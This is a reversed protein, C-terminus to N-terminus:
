RVISRQFLSFIFAFYITLVGNIIFYMGFLALYFYNFDKTYFFIRNVLVIAELLTGFAFLGCGALLGKEFTLKEKLFDAIWLSHFQRLYSFMQTILGMQIIFYGLFSLLMGFILTHIGVFVNFLTAPGTVQSFVLITGLIWIGFGVKIFFFESALLIIYRLNVWGAMFPNTLRPTRGHQDPSLSVPVETMKLKLLGGKVVMESAYEWGYSELKMRELSEKTLARLGSNSDSINTKFFFNICATLIPTGIYRHSWPMANEKIDGKLRTGMVFEYGEDLKKVFRDIEMFNYTGDADGMVVYDGKLYEVSKVYAYGLGKKPVFYVEAGAAKAIKATNDTSSDMIVVEGKLKHKKLANLATQVVTKINVEENLAPIVISIFKKSM